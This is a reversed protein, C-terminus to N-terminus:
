REEETDGSFVLQLLQQAYECEDRYEEKDKFSNILRILKPRLELEPRRCEDKSFNHETAMNVLAGLLHELVPTHYDTVMGVLQEIFGMQCLEDKINNSRACLCSLLFASKIQLKQIDSQMARLLVSFGGNKMFADLALPNERVLCSIGYLAKVRVQENPDSDLLALLPPLLGAELIKEQCFPNNQTLEAIIEAARWRLSSHASDLCPRFIVFGGIKYFDNATDLNDVWDAIVELARECETPDDQLELTGAKKLVEISKLLMEIVDVTLHKLANELWKRREDDMPLPDTLSSNGTAEYSYRLLDLLNEPQRPQNSSATLSGQGSYEIAAVPFNNTNETNGDRDGGASSM